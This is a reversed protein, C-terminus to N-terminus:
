ANRRFVEGREAETMPDDKMIVVGRSQNSRPDQVRSPEPRGFRDRGRDENVSAKTRACDAKRAYDAPTLLNAKKKESDELNCYVTSLVMRTIVSKLM